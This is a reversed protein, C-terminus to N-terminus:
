ADGRAWNMATIRNKRDFYQVTASTFPKMFGTMWKQWKEEGVMAVRNFDDAHNLDFKLDQWAAPLDWGEFDDMEWYLNLKGYQAIKAELVPVLKEYDSGTLEGSFHLAIFNDSDETVHYM